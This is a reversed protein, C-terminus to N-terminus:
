MLDASGRADAAHYSCCKPAFVSDSLSTIGPVIVILMSAPPGTRSLMDDLGCPEDSSRANRKQGIHILRAQMKAARKYLRQGYM